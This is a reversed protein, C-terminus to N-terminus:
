GEYENGVDSGLSTTYVWRIIDGDKPKYTGCGYNPYDKNVSFMWGSTPGLDFEYLQNIGEVYVSNYAPAEEFEMHIKNARIIEQTVDFATEGDAFKVETPPIIWGDEPVFEKKEEALKAYNEPKLLEACSISITCTANKEATKNTGCASLVVLLIMLVILLTKKM